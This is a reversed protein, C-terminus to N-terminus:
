DTGNIEQLVITMAESMMDQLIQRMPREPDELKNVLINLLAFYREKSELNMTPLRGEMAMTFREHIMVIDSDLAQSILDDDAM